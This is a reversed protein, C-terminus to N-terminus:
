FHTTTRRARQNHTLIENPSAPRKRSACAYSINTTKTTSPSVSVANEQIGITLEINGGQSKNDNSTFQRLHDPDGLYIDDNDLAVVDGTSLGSNGGTRSLQKHDSSWSIDMWYVRWNGNPLSKIVVGNLFARQRRKKNGELPLFDGVQGKM